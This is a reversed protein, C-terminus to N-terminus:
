TEVEAQFYRPLTLSNCSHVPAPETLYFQSSAPNVICPILKLDLPLLFDLFVEFQKVVSVLYFVPNVRKSQCKKM